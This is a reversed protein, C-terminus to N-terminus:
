GVPRRVSVATIARDWAAAADGTAIWGMATPRPSLSSGAAKIGVKGPMLCGSQAVLERTLESARLLDWWREPRWAGDRALLDPDTFWAVALRGAPLLSAYWWGDAAAEILPRM